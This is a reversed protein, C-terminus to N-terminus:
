EPDDRHPQGFRLYLASAVAALANGFAIFGHGIVEPIEPALLRIGFVFGLELPVFVAIAILPLEPTRELRSLVGAYVMGFLIFAVSHIVTLVAVISLDPSAAPDVVGTLIATGVLSPTYLPERLWFDVLFFWLAVTAAGYLGAMAGDAVTALLGARTSGGRVVGAPKATEEAM